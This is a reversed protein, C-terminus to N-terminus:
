GCTAATGSSWSGGPSTSGSAPARGSRSPPSSRSSCGARAAGRPHGPRHRRDRGARLRRGPRDAPDAHGRRGDRRPRQRDPQDVGPQARRRVRAGAAADRDYEKVVTVGPAIKGGLMVLTADLGAHLDTPQHPMRDMQSYQKAADVLASIRGTSDAIEVLLTETEVTYALWRLAPELFAPAVADAVRDLDSPGSGPRSSSGPSSGPSPSTTTRSGSASRTRGTPASWRPCTARRRRDPRRVGGAAGTLSRLVEGDLKGDALMALKHRMGAFRDRLARRRAVGRRGGPQEARPHPGATLKGLALLRERQGVLEASNRQGSSCARSCTCRWRTGSRPVGRRVARRAPRPVPLRHGRPGDGPLAARAPRRLLVPGRRLLRRPAVTRVTEVESGGVLRVMSM